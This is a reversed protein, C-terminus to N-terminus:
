ERGISETGFQIAFTAMLFRGQTAWDERANYHPGSVRRIQQYWWEAKLTTMLSELIGSTLDMFSLYADQRGGTDNFEADRVHRQMLMLITGAKNPPMDTGISQSVVLSDEDPPVLQCWGFMEKLEAANYAEGDFPDEMPGIFIRSATESPDVDVLTAFHDIAGILTKLRYYVAAEESAPNDPDFLPM